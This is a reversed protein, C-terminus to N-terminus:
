IIISFSWNFGVIGVLNWPVSFARMWASTQYVLPETSITLNFMWRSCLIHENVVSCHVIGQITLRTCILKALVGKSISPQRRMGATHLKYTM